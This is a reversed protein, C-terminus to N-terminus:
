DPRGARYGLSEARVVTTALPLYMFAAGDRVFLGSALALLPRYAIRECAPAAGRACLRARVFRICNAAHPDAGCNVANRGPSDPLTAMEQPQVASSGLWLYDIRIEAATIAGGLPLVGSSSGPVAAQRLADLAAGDSFDMVSAARAARRTVEQTSNWVYTARFLELMAFMFLLFVPLALALEM